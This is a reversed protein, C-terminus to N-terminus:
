LAYQVQTPIGIDSFQSVIPVDACTMPLQLDRLLPFVTQASGPATLTFTYTYSAGSYKKVGNTILEGGSLKTSADANKLTGASTAIDVCVSSGTGGSIKVTYTGTAGAQLTDPGSIAVTVSPSVSAHCGCGAQTGSKKTRGTYSSHAAAERVTFMIVAAMLLLGVFYKM